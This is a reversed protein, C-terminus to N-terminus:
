PVGANRPLSALAESLHFGQFLADPDEEEFRLATLAGLTRRRHWALLSIAAALTACLLAFGLPKRLLVSEAGSLGLTFAFFV